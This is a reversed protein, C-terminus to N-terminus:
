SRKVLKKKTKSPLSQPTHERSDSSPSSKQNQNRSRRIDATSPATTNHEKVLADELQDFAQEQVLQASRLKEIWEKEKKELAKVLKEAQKANKVEEALKKEYQEKMQREKEEKQLRQKEKREEEVRKIADRKAQKAQVEKKKEEIMLQTLYKKETQLEKVDDLKKRRVAKLKEARAQKGAGDQERNQAKRVEKIHALKGEAEKYEQARKETEVRMVLIEQAKEKTQDIKKRAREEEKQILAIRNMLLQADNAAKKKIHKYINMKRNINMSDDESENMIETDRNM